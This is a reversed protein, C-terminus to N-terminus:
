ALQENQSSEIAALPRIHGYEDLRLVLRAITYLDEETLYGIPGDSIDNHVSPHDQFLIHIEFQDKERGISGSGKLISVGYDKDPFKITYHFRGNDTPDEPYMHHTEIIGGLGKIYNLIDVSLPTITIEGLWSDTYTIPKESYITM